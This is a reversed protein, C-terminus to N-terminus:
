LYIPVNEAKGDEHHYRKYFLCIYELELAPVVPLKHSLVYNLVIRMEM